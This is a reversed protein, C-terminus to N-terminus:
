MPRTFMETWFIRGSRNVALGVGIKKFNGSLINARHSPSSIWGAVVAEPTPQGMAINEGAYLYNIGYIRLMNFVSGYTPSTHGFYNRSVMDQSKMKSLNMLSSDETLAPLGYRAREVNCLNIVRREFDLSTTKSATAAKSSTQSATKSANTTTPVQYTSKVPVGYNYYTGYPYYYNINQASTTTASKLMTVCLAPAMVLTALVKKHRM